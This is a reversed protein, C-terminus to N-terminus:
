SQNKLQKEKTKKNSKYLKRSKKFIFLLASILAFISAIVSIYFSFPIKLGADRLAQYQTISLALAAVINILVVFKNAIALTGKFTKGATKMDKLSQKDAKRNVLLYIILGLLVLSYIIVFAVAVYKFSTHAYDKKAMGWITIFMFLLMSIISFYFSVPLKTNTNATKPSQKTSLNNNEKLDEKKM